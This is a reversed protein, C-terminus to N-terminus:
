KGGGPKRGPKRAYRADLREVLADALLGADQGCSCSVAPSDALQAELEVIRARLADRDGELTEIFKQMRNVEGKPALDFPSGPKCAIEELWRASHYLTLERDDLGGTEAYLFQEEFYPGADPSDQGTRHCRYPLLRPTPVWTDSM